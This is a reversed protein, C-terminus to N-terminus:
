GLMSRIRGEASTLSLRDGRTLGYDSGVVCHSKESSGPHFLLGWESFAFGRINDWADRGDGM